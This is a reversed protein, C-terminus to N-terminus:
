DYKRHIEPTTRAADFNPQLSDINVETPQIEESKIRQLAKNLDEEDPIDYVVTGVARLIPIYVKM